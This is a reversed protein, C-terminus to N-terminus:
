TLWNMRKQDDTVSLGAQSLATSADKLKVAAVAVLPAVPRPLRPLRRVRDLERCPPLFFRLPGAQAPPSPLQGKPPKDPDSNTFTTM